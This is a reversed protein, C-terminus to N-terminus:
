NRVITSLFPIVKRRMIEPILTTALKDLMPKNGASLEQGQREAYDMAYREWGSVFEDFM